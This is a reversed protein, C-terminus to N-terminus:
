EPYEGRLVREAEEASELVGMPLLISNVAAITEPHNLEIFEAPLSFKRFMVRVPGYIAAQTPEKLNAAKADDELDELRVSQEMTFLRSFDAKTIRVPEFPPEEPEPLDVVTWGAGDWNLTETAPDFEPREPAVTFGFMSSFRADDGVVGTYSLGDADRYVTNPDTLRQPISGNKTWEISM